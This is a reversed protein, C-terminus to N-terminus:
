RILSHLYQVYIELPSTPNGGGDNTFTITFPDDAKEVHIHRSETGGGPDTNVYSVHAVDSM